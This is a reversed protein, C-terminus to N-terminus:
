RPIELAFEEAVGLLYAEILGHFEEPFWAADDHAMQLRQLLLDCGEPLAASQDGLQKRVDKIAEQEMSERYLEDPIFLGVACRAGDPGRYLCNNNADVSVPGRNVVFHNWVTNFVEQETM